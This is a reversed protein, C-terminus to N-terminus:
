CLKTPIKSVFDAPDSLLLEERISIMRQFSANRCWYEMSNHKLADLILGDITTILNHHSPLSQVSRSEELEDSDSKKQDQIPIPWGRKDVLQTGSKRMRRVAYKVRPWIGVLPRKLVMHDRPLANWFSTSSHSEEDFGQILVFGALVLVLGSSKFNSMM